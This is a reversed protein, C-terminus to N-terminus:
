YILHMLTNGVDQLTAPDINEITDELTHWTAPFTGTEPNACEIIDIVPVGAKLLYIHDDVVAGGIGDIFRKGAGAKRAAAWVRDNVPKAAYESHYERAFTAGQGGVMDLLVGYNIDTLPFTPNEVWYQAGLAWGDSDEENRPEDAHPGYDEADVLLVDVGMKPQKLAMQRALELIVGVGSAGDNAGDIPKRRNEMAPDQDAWPRSDWHAMVLMRNTAQPNFRASINVADLQTGDTARLQAKQEQIDAAGYQRLKDVIWQACQKSAASGTVRPGFACQQAVFAYASDGSFTSKTEAAPQEAARAQQGGGSKGCAVMMVAAFIIIIYKM